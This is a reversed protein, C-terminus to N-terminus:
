TSENPPQSTTSPTLQNDVKLGINHSKEFSVIARWSVYFCIMNFPTKGKSKEKSPPFFARHVAIPFPFPTQSCTNSDLLPLLKVISLGSICLKSCYNWCTKAVEIPKGGRSSMIMLNDKLFASLGNWCMWVVIGIVLFYFNVLNNYLEHLWPSLASNWGIKM